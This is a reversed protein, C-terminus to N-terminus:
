SYQFDEDSANPDEPHYVSFHNFTQYNFVVEENGGGSDGGTLNVSQLKNKDGADVILGECMKLVIQQNTLNYRGCSGGESYLGEETASIMDGSASTITISSNVQVPFRVYRFYNAKRGLEFLDERGLNTNINIGQVHCAYQGDADLENTGSASIGPIESPLITGASGFLVDERRQVGGSGTISQPVDDNDAFPDDAFTVTDGGVWVKNNGVCTVSEKASDNLSAQYGVASVYLGSLEVASLGNNGTASDNTDPYIEMAVSARATSRGTLSASVGQQTLLTYIPAFGDLVKEMTAEIDPIGEINEYIELQGIEFAQQLNFTTTLNLSQLGRITTYSTSGLPAIGARKCAWFVRRNSM